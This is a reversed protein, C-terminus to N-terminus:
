SGKRKTKRAWDGPTIVDVEMVQVKIETSLFIRKWPLLHLHFLFIIRSSVGSVSWSKFSPPRPHIILSSQSYMALYYHLFIWNNYHRLLWSLLKLSCCQFAKILQTLPSLSDINGFMTTTNQYIWMIVLPIANKNWKNNKLHRSLYIYIFLVPQTFQIQIRARGRLSCLM